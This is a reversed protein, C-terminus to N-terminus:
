AEEFNPPRKYTGGYDLVDEFTGPSAILPIKGYKLLLNTLISQDHRHTHFNNDDAIAEPMLCFKRWERLISEGGQNVCVAGAWVHKAMLYKMTTCHMVRFCEPKTWDCQDFDSAIATIENTNELMYWLAEASIPVVSSDLYIVESDQRLADLMILPKWAWYGNGKPVDFIDRHPRYESQKELWARNYARFRINWEYCLGALRYVMNRYGDNSYYAIVIM